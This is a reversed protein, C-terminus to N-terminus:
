RSYQQRYPLQWLGARPRATLDPRGILKALHFFADVSLCLSERPSQSRFRNSAILFLEALCAHGYAISVRVKLLLHRAPHLLLSGAERSSTCFNQYDQELASRPPSIRGENKPSMKQRFRWIQVHCKKGFAGFFARSM